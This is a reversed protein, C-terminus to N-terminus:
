SGSGATADPTLYTQYYATFIAEFTNQERLGAFNYPTGNKDKLAETRLWAFRDDDKVALVVTDRLEDVLDELADIKATQETPHGDVLHQVALQIPIEREFSHSRTLIADDAALGLLWVKTKGELAELMQWPFHTEELEFENDSYNDADRRQEIADHVVGRLIRTPNM